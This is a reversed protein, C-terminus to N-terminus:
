ALRRRLMLMTAAAGLGILALTSPEPIPAVSINSFDVVVGSGSGNEILGLRFFTQGSAMTLGAAAMNISVHGSFVQGSALQTGNLEVEKPTGFDQFYDGNGTNVFTGIQLFTAGSFAATNISYDYSIDYGAPNLAAAAMAAYLASSSDGSGINAVQFGGLPIAIYNQGGINSISALPSNGFGSNAWGDATGDSFNYNVSQSHAQIAGFVLAVAAMGVSTGIIRKMIISQTLIESKDLM